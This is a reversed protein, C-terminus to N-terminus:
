GQFAIGVRHQGGGGVTHAGLDGDCLGEVAVVGDAGVQDAHEDVVEHDRARLRQEDGVVDGAALHNGLPDRSDDGTDRVGANGSAAGEDAPLGGLVRAQEAGVFVVDRSGGGADDFPVLDQPSVPDLHAIGDHGHCRRTQVGVAIRQHAVHEQFLGPPGQFTVDILQAAGEALLEQFGGLDIGEVDQRQDTLDLAM